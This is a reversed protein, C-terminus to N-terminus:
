QCADADSHELICLSMKLPRLERGGTNLRCIPFVHTKEKEIQKRKKCSLEGTEVPLDPNGGNDNESCDYSSPITIVEIRKEANHAPMKIFDTCLFAHSVDQDSPLLKAIYGLRNLDTLQGLVDDKIYSTM